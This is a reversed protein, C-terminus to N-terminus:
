VHYEYPERRAKVWAEDMAKLVGEPLPGKELDSLCEELQDVDSACVIIIDEGGAKLASHHELWRCGCELETLGHENAAKRIIELGDFYGDYWYRERNHRGIFHGPDFRRGPLHDSDAMDRWYRSTLLGSATPQAAELAMGYHRLCPVLEVEIQRILANYIAQYITPRVWNNKICIEQILAVEWAPFKCLGWRTFRGEKHLENIERLTEEYPVSRDPAYLYFTHVADTRLAELSAKLGANLDEPSHSYPVNQPGLPRSKTPHLKTSIDIGRAKCDLAGLLKESFGGGYIRATDAKSHGHKQMADLLPTIAEPSTFPPPRNNLPPFFGFQIGGLSVSIGNEQQGNPYQAIM